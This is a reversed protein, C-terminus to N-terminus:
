AESPQPAVLPAPDIGASIGQVFRWHAHIGLLIGAHWVEHPGIWGPVLTPVRLVFCAAAGTFAAWFVLLALSARPGARVVFRATSLVGILSALAYPLVLQAPPLEFYAHLMTAAGVGAIAWVLALPGWRWAGRELILHPLVFFGAYILWVAARDIRVLLLTLPDDEGWLHVGFHYASSALLLVVVCKVQLLAGALLKRDHGLSRLLRPTALVVALAGALHLLSSILDNM